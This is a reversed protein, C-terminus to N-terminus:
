ARLSSRVTRLRMPPYASIKAAIEDHDRGVFNWWM